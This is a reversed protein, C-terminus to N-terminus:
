EKVIVVTVGTTEARQRDQVTISDGIVVPTVPQQTILAFTKARDAVRSIDSADITLSIEIVACIETLDSRRRGTLVIDTNGLNQGQEATIIGQDEADLIQVSLDDSHPIYESWVVRVDRMNLKHNATNTIFRTIRHEYNRGRLNGVRGEVRSLGAELKAQGAELKAQGAKLDSVDAELRAQGAELKAQGAELKAQGAKLESVDRELREVRAPLDMLRDVKAPLMLFDDTLLTRLLISRAKPNENLEAVMRAVLSEPNLTEIAPIM